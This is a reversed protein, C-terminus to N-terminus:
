DSEKNYQQIDQFLNDLVPNQPKKRAKKAIQKTENRLITEYYSYINRKNEAEKIQLIDRLIKQVINPELRNITFYEIKNTDLFNKIEKDKIIAEEISHIRGSMGFLLKKGRELFINVNDFEYHYKLLFANFEPAINKNKNYIAGLLIPSDVIVYDYIKAACWIRYGQNATIYFQNELSQANQEVIMDKPFESVIETNLDLVKLAHFIAAALTTKGVGPGGFLNIIKAM